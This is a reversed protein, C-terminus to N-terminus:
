ASEFAQAVFNEWSLNIYFVMDVGCFVVENM